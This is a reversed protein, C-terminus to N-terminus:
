VCLMVCMIAYGAITLNKVDEMAARARDTAKTEACVGRVPYGGALLTGSTLEGSTWAHSLSISRVPAGVM